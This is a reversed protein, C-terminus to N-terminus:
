RAIEQGRPSPGLARSGKWRVGCLTREVPKTETAGLRPLLATDLAKLVSRPASASPKVLKVHVTATRSDLMRFYQPETKTGETAVWFVNRYRRQGAPRTFSRRKAAM